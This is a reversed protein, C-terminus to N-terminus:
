LATKTGDVQQPRVAITMTGLACLRGEDDRIECEWVWTSRGRHRARAELNAVGAAIPRLFNVNISQGMAVMGDEHVAVFTSVSCLGEIVSSFVGGHVIGFPQLLEDRVPLRLRAADPDTSILEGGILADYHSAMTRLPDDM